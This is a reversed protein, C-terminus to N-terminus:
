GAKPMRSDGTIAAAAMASLETLTTAFSWMMMSDMRSIMQEFRKDIADLRKDVQEFRKDVQEFRKNVQDFRSDVYKFREEFLERTVLENRLEDKLTVKLQAQNLTLQQEFHQTLQQELAIRQANVTQEFESVFAEARDKGLVDAFMNFSPRSVTYNM